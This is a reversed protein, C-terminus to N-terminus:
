VHFMEKESTSTEITCPGSNDLHATRSRPSSSSARTPSAARHNEVARAAASTAAFSGRSSLVESAGFRQRQEGGARVHGFGHSVGHSRVPATSGPVSSEVRLMGVITM